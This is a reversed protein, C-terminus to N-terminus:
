RAATRPRCLAIRRVIRVRKGKTTRGVLTVRVSRGRLGACTRACSPAGRRIRVRARRRGVRVRASRLRVGRRARITFRVRGRRLCSRKGLSLSGAGVDVSTAASCGRAEFAARTTHRGRPLYDGVVEEEDGVRSVRQIAQAFGVSPLMHRLILLGDPQVGWSMWNVGCEARANAPRAGPTSMVITFRGGAGLPVQEDYLCDIVRQSAFENECLSWYRVQGTGM